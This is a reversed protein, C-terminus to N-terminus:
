LSAVFGLAEDVQKSQSPVCFSSLVKRQSSSNIWHLGEGGPCSLSSCMYLIASGQTNLIGPFSDDLLNELYSLTGETPELNLVVRSLKSSIDTNGLQRLYVVSKM